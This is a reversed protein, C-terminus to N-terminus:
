SRANFLYPIRHAILKCTRASLKPLGIVALAAPAVTRRGIIHM